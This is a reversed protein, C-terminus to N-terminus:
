IIHDTIMNGENIDEETRGADRALRIMVERGFLDDMDSSTHGVTNNRLYSLTACASCKGSLKNVM